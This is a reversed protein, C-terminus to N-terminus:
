RMFLTLFSWFVEVQFAVTMRRQVEPSPFADQHDFLSRIRGIAEAFLRRPSRFTKSTPRM